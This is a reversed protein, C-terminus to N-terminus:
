WNRQAFKPGPALHAKLLSKHNMYRSIVKLPVITIIIPYIIGIKPYRSIVKLPVITIIIPYIIGINPNMQDAPNQDQPLQLM